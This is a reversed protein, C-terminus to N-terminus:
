VLRSEPPVAPVGLFRLVAEESDLAGESQAQALAAAADDTDPKLGHENLTFGRARAVGRVRVNFRDSGTFYLHAFPAERVPVAMLDLRRAKNPVHIWPTAAAPLRCVGLFKKTGFGFNGPLVYGDNTMSEVLAHMALSAARATPAVIVADIDGSDEAGRRYSGMLALSVDPLSLLSLASGLAARHADMEHRPIREMFDEWHQLGLVETTKLVTEGGAVRRRLDDVGLVGMGVLARARVPGISAISALESLAVLRPDRDPGVNSAPNMPGLADNDGPAVITPRAFVEAAHRRISPGVGEMTMLDTMTRVVGGNARLVRLGAVVRAYARARHPESDLESQSKLAEFTALLEALRDPVEPVRAEPVEPSVGVTVVVPAHDSGQVADLIDAGSVRDALGPSVLIYDLRWGLGLGRAGRSMRTWFSYKRETPYADRFTDRFGADDLLRTMSLREAVTCGAVRSASGHREPHHVDVDQYAVNLDGCVIVARYTTLLDTVYALFRVDWAARDSARELARGAHPVYVNVLVVDNDFQVTLVRGDPEDADGGEVRMCPMLRFPIRSLLAVGAHGARTTSARTAVHIFGHSHVPALLDRAKADNCRIEQLAIVDAVGELLPRLANQRQCAALGAVNWSLFRMM